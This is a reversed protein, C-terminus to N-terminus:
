LGSRLQATRTRKGEQLSGPSRATFYLLPKAKDGLSRGNRTPGVFRADSCAGVESWGSERVEDSSRLAGDRPTADTPEGEYNLGSPAKGNADVGFTGV